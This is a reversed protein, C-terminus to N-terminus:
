RTTLGCFRTPMPANNQHKTAVCHLSTARPRAFTEDIAMVMRIRRSNCFTRPLFQRLVVFASTHIVRALYWSRWWWCRWQRTGAGNGHTHGYPLAHRLLLPSTRYIFVRHRFAVGWCLFHSVALFTQRRLLFLGEICLGLHLAGLRWLVFLWGWACHVIYLACSGLCLCLPNTWIRLHFLCWRKFLNVTCRFNDVRKYRYLVM